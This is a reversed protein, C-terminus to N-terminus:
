AENVWVSLCAFLCISQPETQKVQCKVCAGGSFSNRKKKKNKKWHKKKKPTKPKYVVTIATSSLSGFPNLCKGTKRLWDFSSSKKQNACLDARSMQHALLYFHFFLSLSRFIVVVVQNKLAKVLPLFSAIEIKMEVISKESCNHVDDDLLPFM